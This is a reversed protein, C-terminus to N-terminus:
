QDSGVVVVMDDQTPDDDVVTTTGGVNVVIQAALGGGDLGFDPLLVHDDVGIAPVVALVRPDETLKASWLILADDLVNGTADVVRVHRERAPQLDVHVDTANPPFTFVTFRLGTSCAIASTDFDSGLGNLSFGASGEVAALLERDGYALVEADNVPRGLGTDFPYVTVSRDAPLDLYIKDVRSADADLFQTAIQFGRSSAVLRVPVDLPITRLSFKGEVDVDVHEVHWAGSAAEFGAEIRGAMPSGFQDRIVGRIAISRPLTLSNFDSTSLAVDTLEFDNARITARADDVSVHDLKFNGTPDTHVSRALRMLIANTVSRGKSDTIRGYATLGADLTLQLSVDAGARIQLFRERLDALSSDDPAQIDVHWNGPPIRPLDFSGDPGSVVTFSAGLTSRAIDLDRLTELRFAPDQPLLAKLADDPLLERVFTLTAGAVASGDDASTVTGAVHAPAFSRSVIRAPDTHERPREEPVGEVPTETRTPTAAPDVLPNGSLIPSFRDPAKDPAIKIAGDLPSILRGSFDNVRLAGSVVIFQRDDLDTGTVAFSADFGILQIGGLDIRAAREGIMVDASIPGPEVNVAGDANLSVAGNRLHVRLGDVASAVVREGDNASITAGSAVASRHAVADAGFRDVVIPSRPDFSGRALTALLLAAAAARVHGGIIVGERRPARLSSLRSEGFDEKIALGRGLGKVESWASHMRSREDRLSPDRALEEELRAADELTLGGDAELLILDLIEERQM